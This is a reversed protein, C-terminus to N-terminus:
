TNLRVPKERQKMSRQKVEEWEERKAKRVRKEAEYNREKGKGTKEKSGNRKKESEENREKWENM